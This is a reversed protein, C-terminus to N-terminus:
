CSSIRVSCLVYAHVYKHRRVNSVKSDPTDHGVFCVVETRTRTVLLEVDFHHGIVDTSSLPNISYVM